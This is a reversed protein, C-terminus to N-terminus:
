EWIKRWKEEGVIDVVKDFLLKRTEEDLDFYYPGGDEKTCELEFYMETLETETITAFFNYWGELDFNSGDFLGHYGDAKRIRDAEDDLSNTAEFEIRLTDENNYREFDFERSFETLWMNEKIYEPTLFKM